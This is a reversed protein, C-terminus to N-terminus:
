TVGLQKLVNIPFLVPHDISDRPIRAALIAHRMATVLWRCAESQVGLRAVSPFSQFKIKTCPWLRRPTAAFRDREVANTRAVSMQGALLRLGFGSGSLRRLASGGETMLLRSLSR